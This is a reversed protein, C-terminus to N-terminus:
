SAESGYVFRWDTYGYIYRMENKFKRVRKDFDDEFMVAGVRKRWYWLLSRQSLRSDILYWRNTDTLYPNVVLRLGSSHINAANEGSHPDQPSATLEFGIKRLARPVMLVDPNIMIEEGLDDGFGQMAVIADELNDSSLAATGLNSVGTADTESRPHDTALLVKGDYGVTTLGNNFPASRDKAVKRFFGIGLNATTDLVQQFQMDAIAEEDVMFGRTYTQHTFTMQYDPSMDAYEVAGKWVVPEPITGVRKIHEAAKSSDRVGYIGDLPEPTLSYERIFVEDIVPQLGTLTPFQDNSLPM